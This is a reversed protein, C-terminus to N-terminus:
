RKRCVSSLLISFQIKRSIPMSHSIRNLSLTRCLYKHEYTGKETYYTIDSRIQIQIQIYTTVTYYNGLQRYKVKEVTTTKLKFKVSCNKFITQYTRIFQYITICLIYTESRFYSWLNNNFNSFHIFFSYKTHQSHRYYFNNKKEYKLKKRM